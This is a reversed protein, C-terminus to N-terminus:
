FHMSSKAQFAFWASVHCDLLHIYLVFATVAVGVWRGCLWLVSTRAAPTQILHVIECEEKVKSKPYPCSIIQAVLWFHQAGFQPSYFSIIRLFYFLDFNKSNLYIL